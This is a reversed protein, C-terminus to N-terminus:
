WVDNFCFLADGCSNWVDDFSVVNLDFKGDRKADIVPVLRHDGRDRYLREKEDFSAYRHGKPLQERKQEFVLSLGQVGTFVANQSRLFEMCEKSTTVGSAVQKFVRVRLKHGSGLYRSPNPFTEDTVIGAYRDFWRRNQKTFKTLQTAHHYDNPVTIIGLDVFFTFKESIAPPPLKGGSMFVERADKGLNIFWELQMPTINGSRLKQLLDIQLGALKAADADIISSM